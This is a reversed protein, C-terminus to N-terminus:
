GAYMSTDRLDASITLAEDSPEVDLLLMKACFYIRWVTTICFSLIFSDLIWILNVHVSRLHSFLALFAASICIGVVHLAFEVYLFNHYILKVTSEPIDSFVEM